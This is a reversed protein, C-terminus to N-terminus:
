AEVDPVVVAPIVAPSPVAVGQAAVAPIATGAQDEGEATTKQRGGSAEIDLPSTSRVATESRGAVPKAVTIAGVVM